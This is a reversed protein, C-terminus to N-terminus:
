VTPASGFVVGSRRRPVYFWIPKGFHYTDGGTYGTFAAFRSDADTPMPDTHGFNDYEGSLATGQSLIVAEAQTAGIPDTLKEWTLEAAEQQGDIQIMYTTGATAIFGVAAVGVVPDGDENKSIATLANVASGTYIACQCDTDVDGARFLYRGDTPCTWSYWITGSPAIWYFAPPESAEIGAGLLTFSETGSEGSITIADDFDDNAPPPLYDYDLVFTVATRNLEYSTSSPSTVKIQYTHGAVLSPTITADNPSSDDTFMWASQKIINAYTCDALTAEEFIFMALEGWSGGRPRTGVYVMDANPANFIYKGSASPTFEYWVSQERGSFTVDDEGAENTADFTTGATTGPVTASLTEPSAFNDNAPPSIAEVTLDFTVTFKDATDPGSGLNSYLKLTYTTGSTLFGHIYLYDYTTTSTSLSDSDIVSSSTFDTIVTSVKLVGTLSGPSGSGNISMTSKPVKFRYWGTAGPTFTFWISQDKYGLQVESGTQFTAEKTTIATLTEGAPNLVYPSAYNDNAPAPM